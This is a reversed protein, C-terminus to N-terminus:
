KKSSVGFGDVYKIRTINYAGFLDHDCISEKELWDNRVMIDDGYEATPKM